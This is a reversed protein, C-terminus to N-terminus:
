SFTSIDLCIWVVLMLLLITELFINFWYFYPKALLKLSIMNEKRELEKLNRMQLRCSLIQIGLLEEKQEQNKKKKNFADSTTSSAFIYEWCEDWLAELDSVTNQIVAGQGSVSSLASAPFIKTWAVDASSGAM